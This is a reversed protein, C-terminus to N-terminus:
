LALCDKLIPCFFNVLNDSFKKTNLQFLNMSKKKNVHIKESNEYM